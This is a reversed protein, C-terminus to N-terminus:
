PLRPPENEITKAEVAIADFAEARMAIFDGCYRELDSALDAFAQMSAGDTWPFRADRGAGAAKLFPEIGVSEDGRGLRVMGLVSRVHLELRWDGNVYAGQAFRGGSSTGEDELVFRFGAPVLLPDLHAKAGDILHDKRSVNSDLM